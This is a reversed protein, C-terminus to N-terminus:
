DLLGYIMSLMMITVMEEEDQTNQKLFAEYEAMREIDKKSYKYDGFRPGTRPYSTGGGVQSDVVLILCLFGMTWASLPFDPGDCILGDTAVAIPSQITM